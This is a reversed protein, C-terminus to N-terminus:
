ALRGRAMAERGAERGARRCLMCVDARWRATRGVRAIDVASLRLVGRPPARGAAAESLATVLEWVVVWGEALAEAAAMRDPEETLESGAAAAAAAASDTAATTGGAEGDAAEAAPPAAAGGGPPTVTLQVRGSRLRMTPSALLPPRAPSGGAGGGDSAGPEAALTSIAALAASPLTAALRATDGPQLVEVPCGAAAAAAATLLPPAGGEGLPALWARRGALCPYPQVRSTPNNNPM